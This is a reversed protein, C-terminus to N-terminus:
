STYLLCTKSHGHDEQWKLNWTKKVKVQETESHSHETYSVDFLYEHANANVYLSERVPIGQEVDFKENGREDAKIVCEADPEM